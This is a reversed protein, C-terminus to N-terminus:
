YKKFFHKTIIILFYLFFLLQSLIFYLVLFTVTKNIFAFTKFSEWVSYDYYRRPMGALGEYQTSFLESILTLLLGSIQILAVIGHVARNAKRLVFYCAYVFLTYAFILISIHSNDIIVYTDHLHIDLSSDNKFIETLLLAFAILVLM